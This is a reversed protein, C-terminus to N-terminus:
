RSEERGDDSRILSVLNSQSFGDDDDIADDDDLDVEEDADTLLHPPSELAYMQDGTDTIAERWLTKYEEMDRSGMLDTLQKAAQLGDKISVHSPDKLKQAAMTIVAKLFATTAIIALEMGDSTKVVNEDVVISVEGSYKYKELCGKMHKSLTTWHFTLDKEKQLWKSTDRYSWGYGGEATGKLRAEILARMPHTCIGCRRPM